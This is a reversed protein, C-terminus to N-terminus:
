IRRSKSPTTQLAIGRRCSRMQQTSAPSRCLPIWETLGRCQRGRDCISRVVVLNVKRYSVRSFAPEGDYARGTCLTRPTLHRPIPHFFGLGPSTIQWSDGALAPSHGVLSGRLCTSILRDLRKAFARTRLRTVNTKRLKKCRTPPQVLLNPPSNNVQTQRCEPLAVLPFTPISSPIGASLQEHVTPNDSNM